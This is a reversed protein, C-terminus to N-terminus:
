SAPGGQQADQWAQRAAIMTDYAAREATSLAGLFTVLGALSGLNNWALLHPPTLANEFAAYAAQYAALATVVNTLYTDIANIRAQLVAAFLPHQAQMYSFIAKSLPHYLVRGKFNFASPAAAYVTFPVVTRILGPYNHPTFDDNDAHVICAVDGNADYYVGTLNANLANPNTGVM